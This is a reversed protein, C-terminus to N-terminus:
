EKYKRSVLEALDSLNTLYQERLLVNKTAEMEAMSVQINGSQASKSSGQTASALTRTFAVSDANSSRQLQADRAKLVSSFKARLFSGEASVSPPPDFLSALSGSTGLPNPPISLSLSTSSLLSSSAQLAAAAADQEM